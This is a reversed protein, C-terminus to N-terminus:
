VHATEARLGTSFFVVASFGLIGWAGESVCEADVFSLGQALLPPLATSFRDSAAWGWSRGQCSVGQLRSLSSLARPPIFPELPSKM